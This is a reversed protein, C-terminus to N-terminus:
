ARTDRKEELEEKTFYRTLDIAERGVQINIKNTMRLMSIAVSRVDKNVSLIGSAFALTDAFDRAEEERLIFYGNKAM